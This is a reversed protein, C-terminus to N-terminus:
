ACRMLTDRSFKGVSGLGQGAAKEEDTEKQFIAPLRTVLALAIGFLIMQRVQGYVPNLIGNLIFIIYSLFIVGTLVKAKESRVIQYVERFRLTILVGAILTISIGVLGLRQLIWLYLSHIGEMTVELRRLQVTEDWLPTLAHGFAPTDALSEIFWVLMAFRYQTSGQSLTTESAREMVSGFVVQGVPTVAFFIGAVIVGVSILFLLRGWAKRPLILPWFLFAIAIAGWLTRRFSLLILLVWFIACIVRVTTGWSSYHRLAWRSIVYFLACGMLWISVTDVIVTVLSAVMDPNSILRGIALAITGVMAASFVLLGQDLDRKERFFFLGLLYSPFVIVFLKMQLIAVLRAIEEPLEAGEFFGYNGPLIPPGFTQYSSLSVVISMLTTAFLLILGVGAKDVQFPFRERHFVFKLFYLALIGTLLLDPIYVAPLGVTVSYFFTRESREVGDIGGPTEEVFLILFLFGLMAIRPKWCAVIIAPIAVMVAVPLAPSVDVGILVIFAGAVGVLIACLVYFPSKFNKLFARIFDIGSVRDTVSVM